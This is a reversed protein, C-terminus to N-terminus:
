YGIEYYINKASSIFACSSCSRMIVILSLTSKGGSTSDLSNNERVLDDSRIVASSRLVAILQVGM